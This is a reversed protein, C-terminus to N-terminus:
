SITPQTYQTAPPSCKGAQAAAVADNYAQTEYRNVEVIDSNATNLASAIAAQAAAMAQNVASQSPAGDRYSPQRSQAGWLYAFDPQIGSIDSRLTSIDGAVSDATSSVADGDSGVTDADSQVTDSDSCVQNPDTGNKSETIVIREAQATTALDTQAQALDHSFGGLDSALTGSDNELNSIDAKVAAAAKDILQQESAVTEAQAASQNSSGTNGQLNALAQNFQTATAATFTVPALSGDSQPFNVTFAGGSLTGFVKTGGSFSLTITSGELQGSVSITNTSVSQNPPSGSLAEVQASGSLNNGSQSWQIFVVAGTEKALYGSGVANPVSRQNASQISGPTNVDPQAFVVAAVISIGVLIAVPIAWWRRPSYWKKSVPNDPPSADM